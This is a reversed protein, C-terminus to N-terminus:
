AHRMFAEIEPNYSTKTNHNYVINKKLNSGFYKQQFEIQIEFSTLRLFDLSFWWM